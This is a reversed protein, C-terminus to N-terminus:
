GAAKAAEAETTAGATSLNGGKDELHARVFWHFLELQTTQSVFMDETVPDLEGLEEFGKRYDEIVGTYVLDLAGLHEQTTARGISYEDWTRSKVLRGPTGVPSGGLTAIREALEDAFGRIAEVQPDLMEHVAIFHPGVVNWHIHKLTLHLDNTADLRGQLLEIVRQADSESMGPVTYRLKKTM